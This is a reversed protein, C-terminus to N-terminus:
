SRLLTDTTPAGIQSDEVRVPYVLIGRVLIEFDDKDIRLVLCNTTIGPDVPNNLRDVLYAKGLSSKMFPM